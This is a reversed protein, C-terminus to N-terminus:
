TKRLVAKKGKAYILISVICLVATYFPYTCYQTVQIYYYYSQNYSRINLTLIFTVITVIIILVKSNRKTMSELAVWSSYFNASLKLVTISVYTVLEFIELGQVFKGLTISSAANLGAFSITSAEEPSIVASFLFSVAGPMFVVSVLLGLFLPTFQKGPHNLSEVMVFMFLIVESHGGGALLVAKIFSPIDSDLMPLINSSDFQSIVGIVLSLLIGLLVIEWTTSLRAINEIGSGAILFALFIILFMTAWMPTNHLVFTKMLGGCLMLLLSSLVINLGVYVFIVITSVIKGAFMELIQFLNKGPYKSAVGLVWLAFLINIVGSLSEAIWASRGALSTIYSHYFVVGGYASAFTLYIAQLSTIKQKQLM